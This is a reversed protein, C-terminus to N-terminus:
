MSAWNLAGSLKDWVQSTAARRRTGSAEQTAQLGAAHTQPVPRSLRATQQLCSNTEHLVGLGQDTYSRARRLTMEPPPSRVPEVRSDCGRSRAASARARRVHARARAKASSTRSSRPCAGRKSPSACWLSKITWRSTSRRDVPAEHPLLGRLRGSAPSRGGACCRQRPRRGLICKSSTALSPELVRPLLREPSTNEPWLETSRRVRHRMRHPSLKGRPDPFGPEDGPIRLGSRSSPLPDGVRGHPSPAERRVCSDKAGATLHARWAPAYGQALRVRPDALDRQDLM